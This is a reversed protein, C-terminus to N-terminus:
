FFFLWLSLYYNLLRNYYPYHLGFNTKVNQLFAVQINNKAMQAKFKMFLFLKKRVFLKCSYKFLLKALRGYAFNKTSFSSLVLFSKMPYFFHDYFLFSIFRIMIRISYFSFIFYTLDNSGYYKLFHNLSCIMSSIMYYIYFFVQNMWPFAFLFPDVLQHFHKTIAFSELVNQMFLGSNRISENSAVFLSIKECASVPELMTWFFSWNDVIFSGILIILIIIHIIVMIINIITMIIIHSILKLPHDYDYHRLDISSFNFYTELLHYLQCLM